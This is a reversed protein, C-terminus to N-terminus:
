CYFPIEVHRCRVDNRVLKFIPRLFNELINKFDASFVSDSLPLQLCKPEINLFLETVSADRNMPTSDASGPEKHPIQEIVEKM